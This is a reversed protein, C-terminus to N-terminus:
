REFIIQKSTFPEAVNLSYFTTEWHKFGNAKQVNYFPQCPTNFFFGQSIWLVVNYYRALFSEWTSLRFTKKKTLDNLRDVDFYFCSAFAFSSFSLFVWLFHEFYVFLIQDVIFQNQIRHHSLCLAFFFHELDFLYRSFLFKARLTLLSYCRYFAGILWQITASIPIVANM